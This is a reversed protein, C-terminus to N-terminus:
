SYRQQLTLRILQGGSTNLKCRRNQFFHESIVSHCVLTGDSDMDYRRIDLGCRGCTEDFSSVLRPGTTVSVGKDGAKAVNPSIDIKRGTLKPNRSQSCLQPFKVPIRPVLSPNIQNNSRQIFNRYGLRDSDDRGIIVRDWARCFSRSGSKVVYKLMKWDKFSKPSGLYLREYSKFKKKRPLGVNKQIQKAHYNLEMDIIRRKWMKQPDKIKSM